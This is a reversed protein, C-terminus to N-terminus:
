ARAENLQETMRRFSQTLTGLEDRSAVAPIPSFDGQMVADTGRALISLPASMRRSIVFAVALASLLALLLALTLTLAFIRKLGARALS